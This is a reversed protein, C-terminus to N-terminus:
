THININLMPVDLTSKQDGTRWGAKAQLYFEGARQSVAGGNVKKARKIMAGAVEAVTAGLATALERSYCQKLQGPRINLLVAIDNLGLGAATYQAVKIATRKNPTHPIVEGTGPDIGAFKVSTDIGPIRDLLNNTTPPETSALTPIEAPPPGSLVLPHDPSSLQDGSTSPSLAAAGRGGTRSGSRKARSGGQPDETRARAKDAKMAGGGPRAACHFRLFM